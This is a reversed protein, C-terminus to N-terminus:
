STPPRWMPFILSSEGVPTFSGVDLAAGAVTWFNWGAQNKPTVKLILKICVRTPLPQTVFRATRARIHIPTLNETSQLIVLTPVSHQAFSAESANAIKSDVSCYGFMSSTFVACLM